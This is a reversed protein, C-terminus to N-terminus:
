FVICYLVIIVVPRSWKTLKSSIRNVTDCWSILWSRGRTVIQNKLLGEVQLYVHAACPPCCHRIWLPATPAAAGRNAKTIKKVLGKELICSICMGDKNARLSPFHWTVWTYVIWASETVRSSIADGNCQHITVSYTPRHQEAGTLMLWEPSVTVTRSVVAWYPPPRWLAAHCSHRKATRPHNVGWCLLAASWGTRNSKDLTKDTTFPLTARRSNRV